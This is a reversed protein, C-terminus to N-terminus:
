RNQLLSLFILLPKGKHSDETPHYDLWAICLPFSELLIDHHVYLNSESEEYVYVDLHSVDEESHAGIILADTERIIYDELEEDDEGAQLLM